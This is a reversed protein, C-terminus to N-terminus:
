GVIEWPSPSLSSIARGGSTSVTPSSSAAGAKWAGRFAPKTDVGDARANFTSYGIKNDKAWNPILGWRMPELIRAGDKSRLVPVPLTPPVNWRKAFVGAIGDPFPNIKIESYDDTLRVRGCM